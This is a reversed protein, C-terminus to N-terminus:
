NMTFATIKKTDVDFYISYDAPFRKVVDGVSVLYEFSVRSVLQGEGIDHLSILIMNEVLVSDHDDYRRSSYSELISIIDSGELFYPEIDKFDLDGSTFKAYKEAIEFSINLIEPYDEVNLITYNEEIEVIEDDISNEENVTASQLASNQQLTIELNDAFKDVHYWGFFCLCTLIISYIILFVYFIKSKKM